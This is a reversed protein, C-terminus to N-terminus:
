NEKKRSIINILLEREKKNFLLFYNIILGLLGCILISIILLIWNNPVIILSLLYMSIIMVFTTIIYRGITSLFIHNNQNLCKAAYMPVIIFGKLLGIITSIGVVAYIGWNTFKLALLVLITSILGSTINLIANLRVKNTITFINYLPSIIGAVFVNIFTIITLTTLLNNDVSPMWLGCFYTGFVIIYVIPINGFIGSIKMNKKTETVVMPINDNAYYELTPPQFVTMVSAILNSFVGSPLKALAVIGMTLSNIALNSIILDLGDTLVNGLNTISNWLGSSLLVKIKKISFHKKKIEVNPLLKKTYYVNFCSIYITAFLTAVGVYFVAPKFLIFLLIIIGLKLLSSETQRLTSLYLKNKCYTAITFVGTILSVFFNFFIFAFLLKVDNILSVPINIFNDLYIIFSFAPVILITVILLNAILVSTFYKNVSDKKNRHIDITIFRSCMSNLATTFITAYSVFNIALSVYGYAEAGVKDTIYSSVFFNIVITIFFNIITAIINIMMKNKELIEKM